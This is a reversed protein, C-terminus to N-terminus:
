RGPAVEASQDRWGRAFITEAKERIAADLDFDLMRATMYAVNVVAALRSAYLSPSPVLRDFADVLDAVTRFVARVQRAEDRPTMEGLPERFDELVDAVNLVHATVYATIAVDALEARVDAWSGQRRAMGAWRRHAGVFEGAEEALAHVQRSQEDGDPFHERLHTTIEAALDRLHTM